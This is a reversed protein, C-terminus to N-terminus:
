SESSAGSTTSTDSVDSESKSSSESIPEETSEDAGNDSVVNMIANQLDTQNEYFVKLDIKDINESESVEAEAAWQEMLENMQTYIYQDKIDDNSLEKKHVVYSGNDTDVIKTMGVEMESAAKDLYEDGSTGICFTYDDVFYYADNALEDYIDEYEDESAEELQTCAESAAQADSQDDESSKAYYLYDITVYQDDGIFEKLADDTVEYEGGESFLLEKLDASLLTAEYIRGQDDASTGYYLLTDEDLSNKYEDLESKEEDSLAVGYENAKEHIMEYYSIREKAQDFISQAITTGDETSEDFQSADDYGSVQISNTVWYLFYSASIDKGNVTIVTDNNKLAGDTFYSVADKKAEEIIKEAEKNASANDDPTGQCGTVTLMASLGLIAAISLKKFRM